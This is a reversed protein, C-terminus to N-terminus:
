RVSLVFLGLIPAAAEANHKQKLAAEHPQEMIEHQQPPLM